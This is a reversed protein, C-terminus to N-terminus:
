FYSIAQNGYQEWGEIFSKLPRKKNKRGDLPDNFYVYKKDYGTVLVSHEKMTVRIRGQPTYWTQWYRNPVYSFWSTNIVWVPHGEGVYNLITSFPKGTLNKIRNPKYQNALKEIPQNFVGFGPKNFSYMSGVFGYNPNGFYKRGHKIRFSTKDKKVKKALTLKNVKIGTYNLLMALSTVECGRPLQPMQKIIPAHLIKKTPRKKSAVVIKSISSKNQAEDVSYVKFVTGKKQQPISFSYSGAKSVKKVKFLKSNRLINITSGQEAKGSLRFSKNTIKNISPRKPPIKDIVKVTVTESVNNDVDITHVSVVTKALLPQSLVIKFLNSTELKQSYTKGNVKVMVTSGKEANGTIQKDKNSISFILLKTPPSIQRPLINTGAEAENINGTFILLAVLSMLIIKIHQNHM